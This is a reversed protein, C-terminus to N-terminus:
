CRYRYRFCSRSYWFGFWDSIKWFVGVVMAWRGGGVCCGVFSFVFGCFFILFIRVFMPKLPAETEEAAAVFANTESLLKEDTKPLVSGAPLDRLLRCDENM